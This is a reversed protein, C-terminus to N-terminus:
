GAGIKGIKNELSEKKKKVRFCFLSFPRLNVCPLGTGLPNLPLNVVRHRAVFIIINLAFVIKNPTRESPKKPAACHARSIQAEIRNLLFSLGLSLFHM